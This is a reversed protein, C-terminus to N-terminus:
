RNRGRWRWRHFLWILLVGGMGGLTDLLVDWVSGYRAPVFQQHLEDTAAYFAVLLVTWGAVRWSWPRTDAKVPRRLGRWVLMALIAYETLHAGKRAFFVVTDRARDSLGPLLFDLIPGIIRSSRHFSDTDGSASFIVAM